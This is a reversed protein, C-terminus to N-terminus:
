KKVPVVSQRTNLKEKINEENIKSVYKDIREDEVINLKSVSDKHNAETKDKFQKLKYNINNIIYLPELHQQFNFEQNTLQKYENNLLTIKNKIKLLSPSDRSIM